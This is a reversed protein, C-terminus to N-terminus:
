GAGAVKRAADLDIGGFSEMIDTHYPVDFGKDVIDGVTYREVYACDIGSAIISTEICTRFVKTVTKVDLKSFVSKYLIEGNH